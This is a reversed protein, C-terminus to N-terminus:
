SCNFCLCIEWRSNKRRASSTPTGIAVAFTKAARPLPSRSSLTCFSAYLLGCTDSDFFRATACAPKLPSIVNFFGELEGFNVLDVVDSDKGVVDSGQDVVDSGQDVVDKGVVDSGQDVVDSGQDVVDQGVVDKGVVDLGKGTLVM